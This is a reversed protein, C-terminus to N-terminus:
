SVEPSVGFGGSTCCGAASRRHEILRVSMLARALEELARAIDTKSVFHDLSSGSLIQKLSSPRLLLQRLDGVVLPSEVGQKRLRERAAGVVVPSTDIGLSRTGLDPLLNHPSVAEEFLDTKLVYGCDDRFLWQNVLRLYVRRM